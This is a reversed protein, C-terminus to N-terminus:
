IPMEAETAKSDDGHVVGLCTEPLRGKLRFVALYGLGDDCIDSAIIMAQLDDEAEFRKVDGSKPRAEYINM